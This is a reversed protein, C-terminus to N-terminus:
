NPPRHRFSKDLPVAPMTMFNGKFNALTKNEETAVFMILYMVAFKAIKTALIVKELFSSELERPIDPNPQATLKINHLVLFRHTLADRDDYISSWPGGKSVDRCLSFMAFLYQSHFASLEKSLSSSDEFLKKFSVQKPKISSMKCYDYIFYAVKDLVSIAQKMAAKLLQVYVSHLSYDFPYFLSVGEDVIDLNASQQQSQVLFYRGLVYDQKIENLFTVYRDARSADDIPISMRDIFIPDGFVEKDEQELLTVINLFLRHKASFKCLFKHFENTPILPDIDEPLMEGHNNILDVIWKLNLEFSERGAPYIQNKLANELLRKAELYFRHSFGNSFPATHMIAIAKNGLSLGMSPNIKLANDYADVAEVFRGVSDMANGYETWLNCALDGMSAQNTISEIGLRYFKLAEVFDSNNEGEYIFKKAKLKWCAFHGNAINYFIQANEEKSPYKSQWAVFYEIGRRMMKEDKIAEGVDILCSAVYQRCLHQEMETSYNDSNKEIELTLKKADEVQNSDLLEYVEQTRKYEQELMISCM